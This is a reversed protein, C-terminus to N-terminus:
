QCDRDSTSGDPFIVGCLKVGDEEELDEVDLDSETFNANTLNVGEFTAKNLSAYSLNAGELNARTLDTDFDVGGSTLGFIPIGIFYDALQEGVSYNNPVDKLKVDIRGLDAGELNAQQLNAEELYAGGMEADTLNARTLNAGKLYSPATLDAETLDADTLNAEHLNAGEFDTGILTAKSLNGLTLNVGTFDAATLNASELNAGLLYAVELNAEALNAGKLNAGVLNAGELDVGSLDTNSLDCYECEKTELLREINPTQYNAEALVKTLLEPKTGSLSDIESMLSEAADEDMFLVVFNTQYDKASDEPLFGIEWRHIKNWQQFNAAFIRDSIIKTEITNKEGDLVELDDGVEQYVTIGTADAIIKCDEGDLKQPDFIFDCGTEEGPREKLPIPAEIGECKSNNPFQSCLKLLENSQAQVFTTQVAVISGFVVGVSAIIYKMLASGLNM